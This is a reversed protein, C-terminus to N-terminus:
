GPTPSPDSSSSPQLVAARVEVSLAIGMRGLLTTADPSLDMRLDGRTFITVLLETAGGDRRLDQIFDMSRRLKHLLRSLEIEVSVPEGPFDPRSKMECVWYNGRHSREGSSWVHGPELGLADAMNQPDMSPHRVGLSMTFEHETM